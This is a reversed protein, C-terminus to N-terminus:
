DARIIRHKMMVYIVKDLILADADGSYMTFINDIDQYHEFMECLTTFTNKNVEDPIKMRM